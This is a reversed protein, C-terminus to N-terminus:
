EAVVGSGNLSLWGINEQTLVEFAADFFHEPWGSALSLDESTLPRGDKVLVGRTDMKSAIAVMAIWATYIESGKKHNVVRRYGSGDHRTPIPVWKMDKCKRTQAKEYHKDWDVIRYVM